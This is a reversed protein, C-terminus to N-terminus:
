VVVWGITLIKACFNKLLKSKEFNELSQCLFALVFIELLKFAFFIKLM